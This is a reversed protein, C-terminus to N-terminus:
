FKHCPSVDLTVRKEQLSQLGKVLPDVLSNLAKLQRLSKITEAGLSATPILGKNRIREAKKLVEQLARRVAESVYQLAVAVTVIPTAHAPRMLKLLMDVPTLLELEHIAADADEMMETDPETDQSEQEVSLVAWSGDYVEQTKPALLKKIADIVIQQVRGIRQSAVTCFADLKLDVECLVRPGNEGAARVRENIRLLEIGWDDSCPAEMRAVLNDIENQSPALTASLPGVIYEKELDCGLIANLETSKCLQSLQETAKEHNGGKLAEEVMKGSLSSLSARVAEKGAEEAARLGDGELSQCGYSGLVPM